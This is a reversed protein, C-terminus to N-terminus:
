GPRRFKKLENKLTQMDILNYYKDTVNGHSHGVLEKVISADIQFRNRCLTIFTKRFTKTKYGKNYIGLDKFYRTVARGLNEVSCYDLISGEKVEAMRSKLVSFLEEHFPIHRHKKGKELDEKLVYFDCDLKGKEGNYTDVFHSYDAININVSYNNIPSGVFWHYTNTSDLNYDVKRLRGNSVDLLNNPVTASILMSDPEDYQHEKCPWWLSAGDGQCTSVIFPNGNKDIKWSIGGSWPPRRSITPRGGFSVMLENIKGKSQKKALTVFYANGDKIYKLSNNDQMFEVINMPSQLDIQIVQYPSLVKYRITNAGKITSDAPNV